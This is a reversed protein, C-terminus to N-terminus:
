SFTVEESRPELGAIHRAKSAQSIVTHWIFQALRPLKVSEKTCSSRFAQAKGMSEGSRRICIIKQSPLVYTPVRLPICGSPRPVHHAVTLHVPVTNCSNPSVLSPIRQVSTCNDLLDLARPVKQQGSYPASPLTGRGLPLLTNPAHQTFAWM